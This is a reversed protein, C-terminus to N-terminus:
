GWIDFVNRIITNLKSDPDSPANSNILRMDFAAKRGDGIINLIIDEGPKSKGNRNKIIEWRTNLQKQFARLIPLRPLIHLQRKEQPRTVFEGLQSSTVVDMNQRVMRSLDAVNVFRNFRTVLQYGGTPTQEQDASVTGYMASWDDFTELGNLKLENPQMFRSLNFLEGMTNTVPTGSSMVLNRGPRVTELYRTKTYLDWAKKSGEPDIGKLQQRTPFSLKRFEHAEDVFLFDAGMEEFTFVQDKRLNGQGTLREQLKQVMKELRKVTIRAEENRASQAEAIANRYREVQEEILRDQFADSIPIMGFASHTIIVADLDQSAVDAIFQKRRSTHFKEEDAVMIKANPYQDYFESAFQILMHNPVVFMPKKVLGLRRMEMASGIMASTKGSGVSHAMYTNGRMIIRAIVSKQHPRWEWGVRVGPTTLYEGDMRDPVVNNNFMDNYLQFLWDKGYAWEKFREQIENVKSIAAGTAETNLPGIKGPQEGPHHIRPVQKNLAYRLLEIASKEPTGWVSTAAASKEDGQVTWESIEPISHVSAHRLGLGKEAFEEILRPPIWNMGLTLHIEEPALPAPQAKTLAEVNREFSPDRKAAEMAEKLKTKVRGSLYEHRTVWQDNSGPIQFVRDGLEQIVADRNKGAVEATADIDVRGTKNLVHMLADGVSRIVPATEAAVPNETFVRRKSAKDTEKDYAEISRLRYSEPDDTFPDINPYRFTENDPMKGPDFSGEDWSRNRAAAENRAKQRAEAIEKIPRNALIMASPDFSGEDFFGESQDRAENRAREQQLLTPKSTTVVTKNIPGHTAVFADYLRNLTKRAKAADQTDNGADAAYVARLADRMPILRKVVEQEARTMGGVVGPGRTLVPVGRGEVFQFLGGDRVYYSGNKTEVVRTDSKEQQPTAPNKGQLVNGPLHQLATALLKNLDDGPRARVAYRGPYLRDFFGEEGLVMEPHTGFWANRYGTEPNGTKDPGTFSESRTWARDGQAEGTQRKRLFIIDTTVETGANKSFANGPLRIAGLFDARDALHNRARPDTKNLTGASSIFALIGGPKLADMSKAFFYDHLLFAHKAYEPDSKVRIDAFPPNGIALDFSNKPTQYRTFDAERIDWKPYLAQAIRATMPDMEVGTYDSQNVLTEPMMGAFNGTGMGPEFVKGGQFGFREVAQWMARVVPESTYHAYQTSKRATAYEEDTLIQRLEAGIERMGPGFDGKSNPFAGSLGGWGVYRALLQREEPTAARGQTALQKVLKIATLNDRAKTKM